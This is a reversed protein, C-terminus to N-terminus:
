PAELSPAQTREAARMRASRARPNAAIEAESPAVAKRTVLTFSVPLSDNAPLHRTPSPTGGSRARLFDKVIRDELAHFSVVVLRGGPRLIREAAQLGAQLEGLEDNVAIRLAQFTRTAPDIGDKSRPVQRRVIEALELTRTIPAKGRAAVIARAIRRSCREDGYAYIINALATEETRNVLDAASEGQTPDMRMDLPGDARFSFGRAAEDLQPSSVGLDLAVGDVQTVSEQALLSDMAGFRGHLLTLQPHQQRLAQGAAIAQPDRDLAYVARPTHQLIARTYGGRGFTGDVYVGDHRVHLAAVAEDRLVSTHPANM